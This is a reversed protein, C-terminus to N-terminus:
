SLVTMLTVLVITFTKKRPSWNMPSEPDDPGMFDVITVGDAVADVPEKEITMEDANNGDTELKDAQINAEMDVDSSHSATKDDSTSM